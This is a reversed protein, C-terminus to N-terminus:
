LVTTLVYRIPKPDAHIFYYNYNYKKGKTMNGVLSGSNITGYGFFEFISNSKHLIVFSPLKLTMMM